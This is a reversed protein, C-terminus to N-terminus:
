IIVVGKNENYKSYDLYYFCELCIYYLINAKLICKCLFDIYHNLMCNERSLM